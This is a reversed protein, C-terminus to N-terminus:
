IRRRRLVGRGAWIALVGNAAAIWGLAPVRGRLAFGVIALTLAAVVIERGRFTRQWIQVGLLALWTTGGAAGSVWALKTALEVRGDRAVVGSTGWFLLENFFLFGLGLVAILETNVPFQGKENVPVKDRLACAACCYGDRRVAVGCRKCGFAPRVRGPPPDERIVESKNEDSM